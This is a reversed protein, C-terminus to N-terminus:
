VTVIVFGSASAYLKGLWTAPPSGTPRVSAARRSRERTRPQLLGADAALHVGFAVGTRPRSPSARPRRPGTLVHGVGVALVVEGAQRAAVVHDRDGAPVRIRVLEGGRLGLHSTEAGVLELDDVEGSRVRLVADILPTSKRSSPPAFARMRSSPSGISSRVSTIAASLSAPRKGSKAVPSGSVRSPGSSVESGVFMMAM